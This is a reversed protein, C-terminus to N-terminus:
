GSPRYTREKWHIPAPFLMMIALILSYLTYFFEFAPLYLGINKIGARKGIRYILSFDTLVILLFAALGFPGSIAAILAPVVALRAMFASIILIWGWVGARRGGSLWRIRQQCFEGFSSFPLSYIINRQALPYAIKYTTERSIKKMLAMDETLSFGIARFGGLQDYVARKFGFNNGLVSVPLEIGATGSAVAQLFLLDIQQIISFFASNEATREIITLGCVLATEDTFCASMDSVWSEAVRCDADTVLILQSDTREIGQALANMKGKLGGRESDIDVITFHPLRQCFSLAIDRTGDNSADNLVLIHLLERPYVLNELSHLCASLSQAENRAAVLISVTPLHKVRPYERSLGHQLVLGLLTYIIASGFMIISLDPMTVIQPKGM